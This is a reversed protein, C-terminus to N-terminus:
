CLVVLRRVLRHRREEGLRRAILDRRAQSDPYRIRKGCVDGVLEDNLRVAAAPNPLPEGAFRRVGDVAPQVLKPRVQHAEGQRRM